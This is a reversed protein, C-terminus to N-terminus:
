MASSASAKTSSSLTVKSSTGRLNRLIFKTAMKLNELLTKAKLNSQSNKV